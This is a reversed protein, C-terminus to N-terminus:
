NYQIHAEFILYAKLVSSASFTIKFYVCEHSNRVSKLLAGFSVYYKLSCKLDNHKLLCYLFFTCQNDVYQFM